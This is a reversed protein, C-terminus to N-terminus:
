DYKGHVEEIKLIFEIFGKIHLNCPNLTKMYFRKKYVQLTSHIVLYQIFDGPTCKEVLDHAHTTQHLVKDIITSM